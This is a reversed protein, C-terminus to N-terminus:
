AACAIDSTSAASPRMVTDPLCASASDHAHALQSAQAPSPHAHFSTVDVHPAPSEARAERARGYRALGEGIRPRYRPPHFPLLESRFLTM